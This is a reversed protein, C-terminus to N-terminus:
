SRPIPHTARWQAPEDFAGAWLGRKADRANSQQDAYPGDDFWGPSIAMGQAVLQAGLDIQNQDRCIAVMRGYRDQAQEECTITRNRILDALATRAVKGCPWPKKEGDGCIQAFEPADIGYLRVDGDGIKLTDGDRVVITAGTATRTAPANLELAGIVLWAGTMVVMIIIARWRSM